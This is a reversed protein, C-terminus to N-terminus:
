VDRMGPTLRSFAAGSAPKSTKDCWSIPMHFLWKSYAIRPPGPTCSVSASSRRSRYLCEGVGRTRALHAAPVAPQQLALRLAPARLLGRQHLGDLVQGREIGRQARQGAGGGGGVQAIPERVECLLRPPVERTGMPNRTAFCGAGRAAPSAGEGSNWLSDQGVEAPKCHEM